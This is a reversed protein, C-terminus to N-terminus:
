CVRGLPGYGKASSVYNKPLKTIKSGLNKAVKNKTNKIKLAGRISGRM